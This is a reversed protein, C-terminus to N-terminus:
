EDTAERSFQRWRAIVEDDSLGAVEDPSAGRKRLWYRAEGARDSSESHTRHPRAPQKTAPTDYRGELLRTLHDDNQLLWDLDPQWRDGLQGQIPLKTRCAEALEEVFRPNGALRAALKKGRGRGWRRVAPLGTRQATDNWIQVVAESPRPPGAPDKDPAGEKLLLSSFLLSPAGSASAQPCRHVDESQGPIDQVTRSVKNPRQDRQRSERKRLRDIVYRPAHELWDHVVMPDGPDIWRCEVLVDLLRRPDLDPRIDLFECIEDWPHRLAGDAESHSAAYFWLMQLIGVLEATGIGLLRRARLFKPNTITQPKM